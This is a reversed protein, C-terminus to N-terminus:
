TAPCTPFDLKVVFSPGGLLSAGSCPSSCPRSTWPLCWGPLRLPRQGRPLGQQLGGEEWRALSSLPEWARPLPFAPNMWPTPGGPGGVQVPVHAPRLPSQRGSPNAGGLGVGAEAM